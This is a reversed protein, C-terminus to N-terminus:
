NLLCRLDMKIGYAALSEDKIFSRNPLITYQLGRWCFQNQRVSMEEIAEEFWGRVQFLCLLSFIVIIWEPVVTLHFM